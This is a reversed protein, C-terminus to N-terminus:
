RKAAQEARFSDGSYAAQETKKQTVATTNASKGTMEAHGRKAPVQSASDFLQAYTGGPRAAKEDKFEVKHQGRPPTGM